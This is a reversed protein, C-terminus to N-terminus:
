FSLKLTNLVYSDLAKVLSDCNFGTLLLCGGYHVRFPESFAIWWLAASKSFVVM